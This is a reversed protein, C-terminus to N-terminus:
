AAEAAAGAAAPLPQTLVFEVADAAEALETQSIVLPPLFRMVTLGAPLALVGRGMLAQLYPTVKHKLEIGVM